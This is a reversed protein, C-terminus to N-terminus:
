YDPDLLGFTDTELRYVVNIRGTDGNAFMLFQQELMELEDIAEDVSMPTLQVRKTHVRAAPAEDEASTPEEATTEESEAARTEPARGHARDIIKGKRHQIQTELKAIALDVAGYLSDAKGEGRFRAGNATMTIDVVHWNRETTHVIHVATLKHLQKEHKALKREAYDRFAETIVSQRGTYTVEM